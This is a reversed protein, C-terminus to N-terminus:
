STWWTYRLHGNRWAPSIGTHSSWHQRFSALQLHSTYNNSRPSCIVAILTYIILRCTWDAKTSTTSYVLIRLIGPSPSLSLFSSRWTIRNSVPLLRHTNKKDLPQTWEYVFRSQFPHRFNCYWKFEVSFFAIKM